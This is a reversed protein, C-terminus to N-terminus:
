RSISTSPSRTTALGRANPDPTFLIAQYGGVAAGNVAQVKHRMAELQPGVENYLQSELELVNSGDTGM